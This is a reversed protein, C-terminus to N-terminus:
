WLHMYPLCSDRPLMTKFNLNKARVSPLEYIICFVNWSTLEYFRINWPRLLNQIVWRSTQMEDVPTLHSWDSGSYSSSVDRSCTSLPEHDSANLTGMSVLPLLTIALAHTAALPVLNCTNISSTKFSLPLHILESCHLLISDSEALHLLASQDRSMISVICLSSSGSRLSFAIM